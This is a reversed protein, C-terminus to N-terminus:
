RPWERNMALDIIDSMLLYDPAFERYTPDVIVRDRIEAKAKYAWLDRGVLQPGQPSEMFRCAQPFYGLPTKLKVNFWDGGAVASWSEFLQAQQATLLWSLDVYAPVSTYAVRQRARGSVMQTRIINNEPNINYGARLPAPLGSPYDAM